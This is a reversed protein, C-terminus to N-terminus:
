HENRGEKRGENKLRGGNKEREREEGGCV